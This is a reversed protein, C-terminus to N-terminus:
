IKILNLLVGNVKKVLFGLHFILVKKSNKFPFSCKGENANAEPIRKKSKKDIKFNVAYRDTPPNSVNNVNNNTISNKSYLDSKCFGYKSISGNGNLETPCWYGLKKTKSPLCDNLVIKRKGKFENIIFM